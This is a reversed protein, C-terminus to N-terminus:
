GAALYSIVANLVRRGAPTATLHDVDVEVLGESVLAELRASALPAGGLAQHRTLSIGENLRLGM